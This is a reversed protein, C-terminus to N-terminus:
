DKNIERTSKLKNQVLFCCKKWKKGSKCPCPSNRGIKIKNKIPKKPNNLKVGLINMIQKSLIPTIQSPNKINSTLEFLKNLRDPGLRDPSIGFQNLLPLIKSINLQDM